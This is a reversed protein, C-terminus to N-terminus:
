DNIIAAKGTNSIMTTMTVPLRYLLNFTQLVLLLLKLCFKDLDIGLLLRQLSVDGTTLLFEVLSHKLM